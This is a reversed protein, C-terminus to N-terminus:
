DMKEIIILGNDEEIITGADMEKVAHKESCPKADGEVMDEIDAGTKKENELNEPDEEEVKAELNVISKVLKKEAKMGKQTPQEELGASKQADDTKQLPEEYQETSVVKLNDKHCGGKAKKRRSEDDARRKKRENFRQEFMLKVWAANELRHEEKQAKMVEEMTDKAERWAARACIDEITDMDANIISLLAEGDRQRIDAVEQPPANGFSVLISDVEAPNQVEQVDLFLDSVKNRIFTTADRLLTCFISFILAIVLIIHDFMNLPQQLIGLCASCPSNSHSHHISVTPNPRQISLITRNNQTQFLSLSLKHKTKPLHLSMRLNIIASHSM